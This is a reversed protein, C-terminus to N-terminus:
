SKIKTDDFNKTMDLLCQVILKVDKRSQETWNVDLSAHADLRTLADLIDECTISKGKYVGCLCVNPEGVIIHYNSM